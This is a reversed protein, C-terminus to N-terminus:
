SRGVDSKKMLYYATVALTRAATETGAGLFVHRDGMLRMAMKEEDSLKGDRM